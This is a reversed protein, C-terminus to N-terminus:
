LSRPQQSPASAPLTQAANRERLAHLWRHQTASSIVYLAMLIVAGAAMITLQVEITTLPTLTAHLLAPTNSVFWVSSASSVYLTAQGPPLDFRIIQHIGADRSEDTSPHSTLRLGLSASKVRFPSHGPSRLEVAVPTDSPNTLSLYGRSAEFSLNEGAHRRPRLTDFAWYSVSIIAALALFIALVKKM